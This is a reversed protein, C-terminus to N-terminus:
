VLQCQYTPTARLLYIVVQLSRYQIPLAVSPDISVRRHLSRISMESSSSKTRRLPRPQSRSPEPNEEDASRWHIGPKDAMQADSDIDDM